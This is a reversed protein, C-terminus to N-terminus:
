LRGIRELVDTPTHGDYKPAQNYTMDVFDTEHWRDIPLHYTIQEGETVGIGLVFWGEWETGDSHTKSRWIIGVDEKDKLARCLAIYLTIRHEYLENFSHYGDRIEGPNEVWELRGDITVQSLQKKPLLEQKPFPKKKM